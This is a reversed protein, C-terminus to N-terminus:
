KRGDIRKELGAEVPRTKPKWNGRDGLARQGRGLLNRILRILDKWDDPTPIFQRRIREGTLRYFIFSGGLAAASYAVSSAIAAGQAGLRPVLLFDLIITCVAAILSALSVLGPRGRGEIDAGIVGFVLWMMTGPLLLLFPWWSAAFAEGYLPVLLFRVAVLLMLVLAGVALIMLRTLRSTLSGPTTSASSAVHPMLVTKLATPGYSLMNALSVSVIYIGAESAGVFYNVLFLDLRVTVLDSLMAPTGASAFNYMGRILGINIRLSTGSRLTMLVLVVCCGLVGALGVVVLLSWANCGFAILGIAAVLTEFAYAGGLFVARLGFKKQGAFVAAIVGRLYLSAMVLLSSWVASLPVGKFVYQRFLGPVMWLAIASVVLASVGAVLAMAVVSGFEAKASALFYSVSREFRLTLVTMLIGSAGVVVGFYGKGEPGLWRATLIGLLIAAVFIGGEGVLTKASDKLLARLVQLGGRAKASLEKGDLGLM